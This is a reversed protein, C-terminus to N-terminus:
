ITYPEGNYCLSILTLAISSLLSTSWLHQLEGQNWRKPCQQSDFHALTKSCVFVCVCILFHCGPVTSVLVTHSCTLPLSCIRLTLLRILQCSTQHRQWSCAGTVLVAAYTLCAGSVPIPLVASASWIYKKPTYIWNPHEKTLHKIKQCTWECGAWLSLVILAACHWSTSILVSVPFLSAMWLYFWCLYSVWCM